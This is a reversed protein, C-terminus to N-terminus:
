NLCLFLIFQDSKKKINKLVFFVVSNPYARTGYGGIGISGSCLNLAQGNLFM